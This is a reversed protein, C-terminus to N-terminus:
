IANLEKGLREKWKNCDESAIAEKYSRPAERTGNGVLVLGGKNAHSRLRGVRVGKEEGLGRM